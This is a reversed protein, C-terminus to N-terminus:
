GDDLDRRALLPIAFWFWSFWLATALAAVLGMTADLVM